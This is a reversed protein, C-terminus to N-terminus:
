LISAFGTQQQMAICNNKGDQIHLFLHQWKMVTEHM